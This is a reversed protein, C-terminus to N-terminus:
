VAGDLAISLNGSRDVSAQTGPPLVTESHDYDVIAPGTIAVGPYLREGAYIAVDHWSGGFYVARRGGEVEAADSAEARHLTPRAFAGAATVGISVFESPFTPSKVGHEAEHADHFANAIDQARAASLPGDGLPTLVEWFQGVYRMQAHRSLLMEDGAIGDRALLARGQRELEAFM